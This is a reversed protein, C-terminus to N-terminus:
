VRKLWQEFEVASKVEHRTLRMWDQVPRQRRGEANYLDYITSTPIGRSVVIPKGFSRSPDLAISRNNTLPYWKEAYGTVTNFDIKVALQEIIPKIAWQKGSMLQMIAPSDGKEQIKLYIKKGDSFFQRQAFHHGGVLEDAEKFAARLQKLPHGIDLFAKIFLLDILDLFSAYISDKAGKRRVMPGKSGSKLESGHNVTYKYTYGKLWRRVRAPNVKALRSTLAVTYMPTDLLQM